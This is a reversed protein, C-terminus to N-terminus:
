VVEGVLVGVFILAYVVPVVQEILSLEAYRERWAKPTEDSGKLLEWEDLFPQAPLRKEMANIVTFKADNLDRYSRLILWWAISVVLGPLALAWADADTAGILAILGSLATLFFTSALARRASVRDAMEAALKYIDLLGDPLETRQGNEAVPSGWDPEQADALGV